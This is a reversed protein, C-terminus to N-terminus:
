PTVVSLLPTRSGSETAAVDFEPVSLRDLVTGRNQDGDGQGARIRAIRERCHSCMSLHRRVCIETEPALQGYVIVNSLKTVEFCVIGGIDMPRDPWTDAVVYGSLVFAFLVAALSFDRRLAHHVRRNQLRRALRGVEGPRCPQWQNQAPTENM